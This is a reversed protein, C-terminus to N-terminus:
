NAIQICKKLHSYVAEIIEEIPEASKNVKMTNMNIRTISLLNEVMRILWQSEDQIDQLLKQQTEKSM